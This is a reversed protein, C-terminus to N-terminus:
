SASAPEDKRDAYILLPEGEPFVSDARRTYIGYGEAPATVFTAAQITLPAAIWTEVLAQRMITLAHIARNESLATEASAAKDQLPGAQAFAPMFLLAAATLQMHRPM